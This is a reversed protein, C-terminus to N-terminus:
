GIGPGHAAAGQRFARDLAAFWTAGTRLIGLSPVTRVVAKRVGHSALRARAEKSRFLGLKDPLLDIGATLKAAMHIRQPLCALFPGVM